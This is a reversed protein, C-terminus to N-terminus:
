AQIRSVDQTRATTHAHDDLKPVSDYGWGGLPRCRALRRIALRGGKFVGYQAIAQSAYTSCTPEFRCAPGAMSVLIPSAIRGWGNIIATAIVSPLTALGFASVIDLLKRLPAM